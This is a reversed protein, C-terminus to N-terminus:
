ESGYLTYYSLHVDKVLLCAFLNSIDKGNGYIVARYM